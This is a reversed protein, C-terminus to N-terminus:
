MVHKKTDGIMSFYKEACAIINRSVSVLCQLKNYPTLRFCLTHLEQIAERYPEM